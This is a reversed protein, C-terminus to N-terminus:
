HCPGWMELFFALPHFTLYFSVPRQRVIWLMATHSSGIALKGPLSRLFGLGACGMGGTFGGTGDMSHYLNISWVILFVLSFGIWVGTYESAFFLWLAGV